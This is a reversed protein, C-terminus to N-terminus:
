EISVHADVITQHVMESIHRTFASMVGYRRGELSQLERRAMYTLLFPARTRLQRERESPQSRGSNVRRIQILALELLHEVARTVDLVSFTFRSEYEYDGESGDGDEGARHHDWTFQVSDPQERHSDQGRYLYHSHPPHQHTHPHPYTYFRQNQEEFRARSRQLMEEIAEQRRRQQGPSEDANSSVRSSARGADSSSSSVGPFRLVDDPIEPHSSTELEEQLTSEGGEHAHSETRCGRSITGNGSNRSM